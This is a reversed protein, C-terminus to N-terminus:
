VFSERRKMKQQHAGLHSLCDPTHRLNERGLRLSERDVMLSDRDVSLRSQPSEVSEVEVSFRLSHQTISDRDVGSSEQKLDRDSSTDSSASSTYCSSSTPYQPEAHQFTWSVPPLASLKPERPEPPTALYYPADETLYALQPSKERLQKNRTRRIFCIVSILVILGVGGLSGALVFVWLNATLPPLPLSSPAAQLSPLPSEEKPDEHVFVSVINSVRGSNGEEDKALVAYYLVTNTLPVALELSEEEGFLAPKDVGEVLLNGGGPLLLDSRVLSWRIDYKDAQGKTLDGGPATWTLTLNEGTGEVRLNTIRSPPYIDKMAPVGQRIVYVAGSTTYLSRAVSHRTFPGTPVEKTRSIASGCVKSFDWSEIHATSTSAKGEAKLRLSYWGGVEAWHFFYGSYIGDGEMVDPNDGGDDVLEVEVQEGGPLGVLAVVKAEKVPALGYTLRAFIRVAGEGERADAWWGELKTGEEESTSAYAAVRLPVVPEVTLAMMKVHWSWIGEEVDERPFHFGIGGNEVVPFQFMKGSPSTLTFEEIDETMITTSTVMMRTRLGAEVTFKGNASSNSKVQLRESFFKVSRREAGTILSLLDYIDENSNGGEDAVSYLLTHGPAEAFPNGAAGGLLIVALEGVAPQRRVVSESGAATILISKTNGSSQEAVKAAKKLACQLCSRTEGGPKGPIRGHIGARNTSTLVVPALKLHASRDFTVVAVRDGNPLDDLFRALATHLNRWRFGAEMQSSRDLMLIYLTSTSSPAWIQLQPPQILGTPAKYNGLRAAVMTEPSIDGCLLSQPSPAESEFGNEACNTREETGVSYLEPFRSSGELGKTSFTGFANQVLAEGLEVARRDTSNEVQDNVWHSPLQVHLGPEGCGGAHLVRPAPVLPFADLVVSQSSTSTSPPSTSLHTSCLPSSSLFAPLEIFVTGLTLGFRKHLNQSTDKLLGQFYM